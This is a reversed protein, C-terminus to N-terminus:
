FMKSYLNLTKEMKVLFKGFVKTTVAATQLTVVFNAYMEKGKKVIECVTFRLLRLMSTKKEGM